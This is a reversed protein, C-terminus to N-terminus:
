REAEPNPLGGIRAWACRRNVAGEGRWQAAALMQRRQVQAAVSGADAPVSVEEGHRM